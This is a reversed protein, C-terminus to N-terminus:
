MLDNNDNNSSPKMPTKLKEYDNFTQSILKSINGKLMDGLKDYETTVKKLEERTDNLDREMDGLKRM